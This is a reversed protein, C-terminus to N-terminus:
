FNCFTVHFTTGRDQDISVVVPNTPKLRISVSRCLIRAADELDAYYIYIRINYYAEKTGGVNAQKGGANEM